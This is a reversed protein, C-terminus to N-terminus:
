MEPIKHRIVKVEKNGLCCKYVSLSSYFSCNLLFSPISNVWLGLVWLYTNIVLINEGPDKYLKLCLFLVMSYM